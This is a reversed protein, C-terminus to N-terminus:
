GAYRSCFRIEAYRWTQEVGLLPAREEL